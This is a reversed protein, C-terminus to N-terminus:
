LALVKKDGTRSLRDNVGGRQIGSAYSSHSSVVTLKNGGSSPVLQGALPIEVVSTTYDSRTISSSRLLDNLTIPGELVRLKSMDTLM